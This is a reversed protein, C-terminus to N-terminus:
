AREDDTGREELRRIRRQLRSIVVTNALGLVALLFICLPNVVWLFFEASTM